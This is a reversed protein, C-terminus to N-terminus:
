DRGCTMNGMTSCDWCASDEACVPPKNDAVGSAVAWVLLLVALAAVAAFVRRQVVPSLGEFWARM